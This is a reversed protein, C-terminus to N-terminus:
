DSYRPSYIIRPTKGLGFAKGFNYFLGIEQSSSVVNAPLIGIYFEHCYALNLQKGLSFGLSLGLSEFSNANYGRLHIGGFISGNYDFGSFLDTQVKLLDTNIVALAQLILQNWKYDYSLNAKINRRNRFPFPKDKKGTELLKEITFGAQINQWILYASIGFDMIARSGTQNLLQPDNHEVSGSQYIGDGTRALESDFSIWDLDAHIGTAILIGSLKSIKHIGPKFFIHRELGLQDQGMSMGIASGWKYVPCHFNLVISRPHGSIAQWQNRYLGAAALTGELGAYSPNISFRDRYALSSLPSQQAWSNV